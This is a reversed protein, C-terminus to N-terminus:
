EEGDTKGPMETQTLLNQRVLGLLHRLQELQDEDLGELANDVLFRLPARLGELMDHGKETAHVQWARRDHPDARREVLGAAAMRDVMRGATIPEIEFFSAVAAQNAGPNRSLFLLVRLQTGTVGHPRAASDMRKRFLRGIDSALYPVNLDM